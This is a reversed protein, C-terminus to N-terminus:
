SMAVCGPLGCLRNSPRASVYAVCSGTRRSFEVGPVAVKTHNADTEVDGRRVDLGVAAGTCHRFASVDERLAFFRVGVVFM